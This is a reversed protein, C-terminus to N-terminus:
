HKKTKPKIADGFKTRTAPPAADGFRASWREKAWRRLMAGIPMDEHEALAHLTALESDDLRISLTRERERM